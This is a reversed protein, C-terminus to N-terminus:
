CVKKWAKIASEISRVNDGLEEQTVNGDALSEALKSVAATTAKIAADYKSPLLPSLADIANAVSKAVLACQAIKSQDLSSLWKNVAELVYVALGSWGGTVLSWLAGLKSINM